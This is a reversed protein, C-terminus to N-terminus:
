RTLFSKLEDGMKKVLQAKGYLIYSQRLGPFTNFIFHAMTDADKESKIFGESQAQEILSKIRRITKDNGAKIIACVEKDDSALEFATKVGLCSNPRKISLSVITDIISYLKELANNSKNLAGSYDQDTLKGYNELCKKFLTHKDGFSNYLSSKNLQMAETLDSLSTATYGKRWFVEMAKEIKEEPIFEINRAM